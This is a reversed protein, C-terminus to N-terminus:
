DQENNKLLEHVKEFSMEDLQELKHHLGAIQKNLDGVTTFDFGAITAFVAAKRTLRSLMRGGTERECVTWKRSHEKYVFFDFGECTFRYGNVKYKYPMHTRAIAFPTAVLILAWMKEKKM